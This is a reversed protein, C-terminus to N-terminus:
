RTDPQEVVPNSRAVANSVTRESIVKLEAIRQAISSMMDLHKSEFETLRITMVETSRALARDLEEVILMPGEEIDKGKSAKIKKRPQPKSVEAEEM